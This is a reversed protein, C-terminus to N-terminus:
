SEPTNPSAPPNQAGPHVFFEGSGLDEGINRVVAREHMMAVAPVRSSFSRPVTMAPHVPDVAFGPDVIVPAM